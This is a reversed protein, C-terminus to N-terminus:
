RLRGSKLVSQGMKNGGASLCALVSKLLTLQVNSPKRSDGGERSGRHCFPQEQLWLLLRLRRQKVQELREGHGGLHEPLGNLGVGLHLM